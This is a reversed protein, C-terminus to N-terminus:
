PAPIEITEPSIKEVPAMFRYGRRPITEIFRPKSASDGLTERLKNVASNLSHDFDVFTQDPWLVTRLEDRTVLEGTRDVLLVLIRFPQEHLKVRLGAKRLEANKVDLEFLGFRRISEVPSEAMFARHLMMAVFQASFAAALLHKL